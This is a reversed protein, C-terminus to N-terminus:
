DVDEELCPVEITLQSELGPRMAVYERAWHAEGDGLCVISAGAWITESAPVARCVAVGVPASLGERGFLGGDDPADAEFEVPIATDAEADPMVGVLSLWGEDERLSLGECDPTVCAWALAWIM